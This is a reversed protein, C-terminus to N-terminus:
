QHYKLWSWRVHDGRLLPETLVTILSDEINNKSHKNGDVDVVWHVEGGSTARPLVPAVDTRAAVSKYIALEVLKSALLYAPWYGESLEAFPAIDRQIRRPLRHGDKKWTELRGQYASMRSNKASVKASNIETRINAFIQRREERRKAWPGYFYQIFNFIVAVVLGVVVALNAADQLDVM